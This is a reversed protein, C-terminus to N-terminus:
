NSNVVSSDNCLLCQRGDTNELLMAPAVLSVRHKDKRFCRFEGKAKQPTRKAWDKTRNQTKNIMTQIKTRKKKKGYYQIDKISKHSKIVEIINRLYKECKTHITSSNLCLGTSFFM